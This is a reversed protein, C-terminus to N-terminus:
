IDRDREPANSKLEKTYGYLCFYNNTLLFEYRKDITIHLLAQKFWLRFIYIYIYIYICLYMCVYM